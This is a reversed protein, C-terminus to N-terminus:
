PKQVSSFEKRFDAFEQQLDKVAEFVLFLMESLDQATVPSVEEVAPTPDDIISGAM